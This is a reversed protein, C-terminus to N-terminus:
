DRYNLNQNIGALQEDKLSIPRIITKRKIKKTMPDAENFVQAFMVEGNEVELASLVVPSHSNMILQSLPEEVSEQPNTVLEQLRQIMSKLRRPHIGNEPEEFCVLGRHKPDNLLALLALVRLTGDSVVRSSFPPGERMSIDIHYERNNFDTEVTLDVIGPILRVLDARINVLAGLPSEDTRTEAQIRALVSPLNSGDPLMKEPAIMASPRRLAIPDLQLFRWSRLEERLAYLHPFDANTISSLITAEAADAPRTRGNQVDQHIHFQLQGETETSLWDTHRTYKLFREKFAKSPKKNNPQWNDDCAFIPKASEKSILFREIKREDQRREIEVEYRIRSHSIKVETGWADYLKPELLVEVAFYMKDVLAGDPQRRFLEYLEGRMEKVATSLDSEALRSLFRIADFLNSKGSANPGLIVLFPNVDMKFNDFTKFGSIEIRTLM